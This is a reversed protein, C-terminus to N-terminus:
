NDIDAQAIIGRWVHEFFWAGYAVDPDMPSSLCVGITTLAKQRLGRTLSNLTYNLETVATRIRDATESSCVAERGSIFLSVTTTSVGAHAAVDKITAKRFKRM